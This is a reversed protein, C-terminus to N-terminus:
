GRCTWTRNSGLRLTLRGAIGVIVMVFPPGNRGSVDVIESVFEPGSLHPRFTLFVENRQKRPMRTRWARGGATACVIVTIGTASKAIERGRAKCETALRCAPMSQPCRQVVLLEDSLEPV